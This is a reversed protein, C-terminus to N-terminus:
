KGDLTGWFDENVTATVIDTIGANCVKERRSYPFAQGGDFVFPRQLATADQEKGV